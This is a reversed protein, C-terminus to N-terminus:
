CVRREYPEIAVNKAEIEELNLRAATEPLLKPLLRRLHQAGVPGGLTWTTIRSGSQELLLTATAEYVPTM